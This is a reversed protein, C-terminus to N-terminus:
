TEKSVCVYMDAPWGRWGAHDSKQSHTTPQQADVNLLLILMYEYEYTFINIYTSICLAGRTYIYIYKYM